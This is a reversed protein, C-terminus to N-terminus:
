RTRWAGSLRKARLMARMETLAACSSAPVSRAVQEAHAARSAAQEAARRKADAARLVSPPTRGDTAARALHMFLRLPHRQSAVPLSFLGRAINHEDMAQLLEHQGWGSLGARDLAIAFTNIHQEPPCLHPLRRTM